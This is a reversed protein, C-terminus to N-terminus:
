FTGRGEGALCTAGMIALAGLPGTSQAASMEVVTAIESQLTPRAVRHM